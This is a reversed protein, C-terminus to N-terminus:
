HRPGSYYLKLYEAHLKKIDDPDRGAAEQLELSNALEDMDAAKQALSEAERAVGVPSGGFFSILAQEVKTLHKKVLRADRGAPTEFPEFKLNKVPPPYPIARPLRKIPEVNSRVTVKPLELVKSDPPDIKPRPAEVPPAQEARRWADARRDATRKAEDAVAKERIRPDYDPLARRLVEAREERTAAAPLDGPCSLLIIAALACPHPVGATRPM